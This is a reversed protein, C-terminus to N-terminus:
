SESRRTGKQLRNLIASDEDNLSAGLLLDPRKLWTQRLAEARRWKAVSAHDGSLLVEPVKRGRFDAPRTYHPFDLVGAAFSEAGASDENGLVGPVHRAVTELLVLAPLEGGMLVYDGISVEEDVVTERVREDVGEYRGCLLVLGPYAALALATAHTLPAGQPSLLVVREGPQKVAEVAECLPEPKLVMGGGGGFPADDVQRHRDHAYDRLNAVEVTLRKSEIARKLLGHGLVGQVLEPFITVITARM